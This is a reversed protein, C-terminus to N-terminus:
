KDINRHFPDYPDTIIHDRLVQIVEDIGDEVTRTISFGLVRAIKDFNVKYDRPDEDKHVHEVHGDPVRELILKALTQKQYNQSNDGVNFVQSCVQDASAELVLQMARAVDRVHVYPRWFQEGYIVLHKNLYLEMSFENVTLDFRMRPSVGYVTSLRLATPFFDPDAPLDMLYREVAVKTNAYLSVPHLEGEETIMQSSDKMKGYNSCTSAFIFRGVRARRALDILQISAVENIERAEEPSRACAPDGVIAALHVVADVGQLAQQVKDLNRIDGYVFEFRDDGYLGLLARGTHMLKDLGRVCYGNALLHTALVSGVYGAVGTILVTCDRATV